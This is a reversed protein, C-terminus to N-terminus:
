CKDEEDVDIKLKVEDREDKEQPSLIENITLSENRVFNDRLDDDNDENSELGKSFKRSLMEKLEIGDESVGIYNNYLLKTKYISGSKTQNISEQGETHEQLNGEIIEKASKNQIILKDTQELKKENKECIKFYKELEQDALKYVNRTDASGSNVVTKEDDDKDDIYIEFTKTKPINKVDPEMKDIEYTCQNVTEKIPFCSSEKIVEDISSHEIEDDEISKSKAAKENYKPTSSNQIKKQKQSQKRFLNDYSHPGSYGTLLNFEEDDSDYFISHDPDVYISNRGSTIKNKRKFCNINDISESVYNNEMKETVPMEKNNSFKNTNGTELNNNLAKDISTEKSKENDKIECEDSM